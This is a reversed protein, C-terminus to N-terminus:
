AGYKNELQLRLLQNYLRYFFAGPAYAEPRRKKHYQRVDITCHLINVLM